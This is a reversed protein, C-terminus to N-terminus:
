VPRSSSSSSASSSSSNSGKLGSGSNGNCAMVPTAVLGAAVVATQALYVGRSHTTFFLQTFFEWTQTVTQGNWHNFVM